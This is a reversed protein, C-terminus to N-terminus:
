EEESESEYGELMDESVIGKDIDKKEVEFYKDCKLKWAEQIPDNEKRIIIGERWVKNKCLPEKEEMGFHEKDNKMRELLNEHWHETQSLDPYLDGLSGHYLVPLPFLVEKLHPYSEMLFKTYGVVDTIEYDEYLGTEQNMETVRYIMLKNKGKECGYDYVKGGRTQIGTDTEPVYGIVEGYIIVGKDICGKLIEGWQPYITDLGKPYNKKDDGVPRKKPQPVQIYQNGSRIVNRSSYVDEYGEDFKQWKKPLLMFGKLILRNLWEYKATKVRPKRVKINGFIISSGDCKVTIDVVDEPKFLHLNRQLQNTSYHFQWQGEPIADIKAIAKKHRKYYRDRSGGGSHRRGKIRPVYPKCFLEDGITDFEVGLYDEMNINAVEPFALAMAKQSFLFGYSPTGGLRIMKVRGYKNFFGVLRKAEDNKGEQVLKEVEEYNANLQRESMEYLCNTRLFKECLESENAAYFLLEGEHCEDKRVVMSFNEVMTVGISDYNPIDKVEGLRVITCCYEQRFNESKKFIEKAM